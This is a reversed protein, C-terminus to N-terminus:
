RRRNPLGPSRRTSPPNMSASSRGSPRNGSPDTSPSGSCSSSRSPARRGSGRPSLSDERRLNEVLATVEASLPEASLLDRADLGELNTRFAGAIRALNELACVGDASAGPLRIAAIKKRISAVAEDAAIERDREIAAILAEWEARPIFLREKTWDLLDEASRPAYGPATRQLKATLSAILADPIRPRLRTSFLVEKLLEGSLGSAKGSVPSDDEYMHTNIQRWILGDAFPSAATTTAETVRIEGAGSRTSSSTSIRWTSNM